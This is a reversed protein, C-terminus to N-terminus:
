GRLYWVAATPFSRAKDPGWPQREGAGGRIPLRPVSDKEAKAQVKKKLRCGGSASAKKGRGGPFKEWLRTTPLLTCGCRRM